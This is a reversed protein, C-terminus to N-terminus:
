DAARSGQERDTWRLLKCAIGLGGSMESFAKGSCGPKLVAPTDEHETATGGLGPTGLAKEQSLQRYIPTGLSCKSCSDPLHAGAAAAHPEEQLGTGCMKRADMVQYMARFAVFARTYHSYSPIQDSAM